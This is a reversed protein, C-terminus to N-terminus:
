RRYRIVVNKDPQGYKLWTKTTGPCVLMFVCLSASALTGEARYKKAPLQTTM